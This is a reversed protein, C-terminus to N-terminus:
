HENRCDKTLDALFVIASSGAFHLCQLVYFIYITVLYIGQFHYHIPRRVGPPVRRTM